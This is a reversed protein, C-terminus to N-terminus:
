LRFHSTVTWPLYYINSNKVTALLKKKKEKEEGAHERERGRARAREREGRCSRSERQESWWIVHFSAEGVRRRRRMVSTTTPRWATATFNVTANQPKTSKRRNRGDGAVLGADFTRNKGLIMKGRAKLWSKCRPPLISSIFKQTVIWWDPEVNEKITSTSRSM